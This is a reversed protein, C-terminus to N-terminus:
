LARASSLGSTKPPATKTPPASVVVVPTSFKGPKGSPMSPGSRIAFMRAWASLNPASITSSSMM